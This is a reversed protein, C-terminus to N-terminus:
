CGAEDRAHHPPPSSSAAPHDAHAPVRCSAPPLRALVPLPFRPPPHSPPHHFPFHHFPISHVPLPKSRPNGAPHPAVPRLPITHIVPFSGAQNQPLRPRFNGWLPHPCGYQTGLQQRTGTSNAHHPSSAAPEQLLLGQLIGFERPSLTLIPQGARSVRRHLIDMVLDGAEQPSRRRPAATAASAEVHPRRARGGLRAQRPLRGLRSRYRVPPRSERLPPHPRASLRRRLRSSSDTPSRALGLSHGM